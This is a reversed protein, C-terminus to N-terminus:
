PSLELANRKVTLIGLIGLDLTQFELETGSSKRDTTPGMVISGMATISPDYANSISM